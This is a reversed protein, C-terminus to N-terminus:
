DGEGQIFYKEISYGKRQYRGTFVAENADDPRVYGSLEKASSKIYELHRTLNMRSNELENISNQTEYKNISFITNGGLATSIQGTTTVRLEDQSLFPVDEDAPNGPLDLYKQFFANIAERNKRTYGHEYDDEVMAIDEEKGYAKYAKKIESFTERAGQISFFDRTTSVLLAPKPARIELLDAHDIGRAIGHYFNQEADQPGISEFLRKFSTIYGAPAVALVRKDFAAIYSSQTGGGSLGHCGIRKPDIEKRSVLYDIARIGDWIMYRALSSGSIFCQAGPYSHEKTPGGIRSERIEPDYYQLREGQGVPDIALVIFGKKVLNLVVKQYIPRRVASTSHGSVFLIAPTKVKLNEPVFLFATVYFEPMSEYIIKEVHYGDKKVIGVVKANLSTKEPFPGVIDMLTKRVKKQREVWQEKTKIKGVESSRKDLYEFAQSSLHHYLADPSDSYQMWRGIVKLDEQQAKASGTNIIEFIFIILSLVILNTWKGTKFFLKILTM